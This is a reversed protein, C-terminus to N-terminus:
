SHHNKPRYQSLYEYENIKNEILQIQNALKEQYIEDKTKPKVKEKDKEKEKEEEEDNDGDLYKGIKISKINLETDNVIKKSEKLTNQLNNIYNNKNTNNHNHERDMMLKYRLEKIPDINPDIRPNYKIKLTENKDTNQSSFSSSSSHYNNKKTKDILYDLTYKNDKKQSEEKFNFNVKKQTKSSKEKILPPTLSISPNAPTISIKLDDEKEKDKTSIENLKSNIFENLINKEEQPIPKFVTSKNKKKKQSKSKLDFITKSIESEETFSPISYKNLIKKFDSLEYNFTADTDINDILKDFNIVRKKKQTKTIVM